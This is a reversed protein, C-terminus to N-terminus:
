CGLCFRRGSEWEKRDMLCLGRHCVHLVEREDWAWAEDYEIEEIRKWDLVDAPEEGGFSRPFLDNDAQEEIEVIKLLEGVPEAFLDIQEGAKAPVVAVTLGAREARQHIESGRRFCVRDDGDNGDADDRGTDGAGQCLWVFCRM